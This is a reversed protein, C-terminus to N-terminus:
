LCLYRNFHEIYRNKIFLFINVKDSLIGRHGIVREFLEEATSTEASRFLEDILYIKADRYVARALDVKLM